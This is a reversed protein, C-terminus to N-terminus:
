QGGGGLGVDCRDHLFDYLYIELRYLGGALRRVHFQEGRDEFLELSELGLACNRGFSGSVLTRPQHDTSACKKM